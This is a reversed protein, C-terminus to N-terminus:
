PLNKIIHYIFMPPISEGIIDRILKENNTNPDWKDDLGTLLMIEYVTLARANDYLTEGNKEYPNGPHVNNQSSISGSSMTITPSPEDWKIRKYTTKYGKIPRNNKKPFHIKNNFATQGTPTNSMWLIHNDNHFKAKHWKHYNSTEGSELTPLHGITDRVTLVKKIKKPHKWVLLTKLSFLTISRKRSQPVEYDKANLISTNITYLDSLENNFKQYITEENNIMYKSKMFSPVNEILVYKPKLEKIIRILLLFLPTREDSIKKNGANSFSQCPPTAMIFEINLEKGKLIIEDIKLNIDGQIMLSNPYFHKYIDCRDQLLENALVIDISDNLKYEAIGACAFLSLGKMIYTYPTNCKFVNRFGRDKFQICYSQSDGGSGKRQIGVYNNLQLNGSKTISPKGIDIKNLLDNYNIIKFNINKTETYNETNILFLDAHNIKDSCMGKRFCFELLKYKNYYIFLEITLQEHLSLENLWFRNKDKNRDNRKENLISLQDLTPILIGLFKEFVHIVDSNISINNYKCYKVFRDLSTIHLQTGTNTMKISIPYINDKDRIVMDSKSTTKDNLISHVHQNSILKSELSDLDLPIGLKNIYRLIHLSNSLIDHINKEYDIGNSRALEGSLIRNM